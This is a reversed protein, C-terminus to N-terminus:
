AKIAGSSLAFIRENVIVDIHLISVQMPRNTLLTHQSATQADAHRRCTSASAGPAISPCFTSWLLPQMKSLRRSLRRMQVLASFIRLARRRLVFLHPNLPDMTVTIAPPCADHNVILLNVKCSHSPQLPLRRRHDPRGGVRRDRHASSDERSFKLCPAPLTLSEPTRM